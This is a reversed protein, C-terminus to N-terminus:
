ESSTRDAVVAFAAHAFVPEIFPRPTVLGDIM